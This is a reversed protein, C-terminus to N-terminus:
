LYRVPAALNFCCQCSGYFSFVLLFLHVFQFCKLFACFDVSGKSQKFSTLSRFNVSEFTFELHKYHASLFIILLYMTCHNTHHKYLKFQHGLILVTSCFEFLNVDLDV